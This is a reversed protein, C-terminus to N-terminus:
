PNPLMIIFKSGKKPESNVQIEGNLEKIISYTIFLGLGTGTGPAKTTFFPDSIKSINEEPIGEGNDIFSIIVDDKKQETVITIEGQGDIAQEANSLINLFAQHLKGENGIVVLKKDSYQRIIKIRGKLRANLIVLCNDIIEHVVCKEDMSKVQRSFHGLSKVINTARNVGDDIIDLFPQIVEVNYGSENQLQQILGSCGNKIFNLPNNIEHGIGAALIGLSAMKEAQILQAQTAKLDRLAKELEQNGSLLAENKEKLEQTREAVVQELNETYRELEKQSERLETIDEIFLSVGTVEDDQYIPNHSSFFYLDGQPVPYEMTISFKEGSLARDLYANFKETMPSGLAGILDMGQRLDIDDTAKVYDAFSQNFEILRKNTDFLGIISNTSEFIAKLNADREHLRSEAMKRETIDLVVGEILKLKGEEFIGQGYEDVWIWSDSRNNRLRYTLHFPEKRELAEDVKRFIAEKDDPHYLDVFSIQNSLFEERKYGTLTEAEENLYVMSYTADNHCLYIVGPINDAIARFRQDSERLQLEVEKLETIDRSGTMLSIVESSENKIVETYSDLWIYRGDKRRYRYQINDSKVGDGALQEAFNAIREVDDPHFYTYPDKGILEEPKYGLLKFSSPSVFRYTGDPEHSCILERSLEMVYRQRVESEQIVVAEKFPEHRVGKYENRVSIYKGDFSFVEGESVIYVKGESITQQEQTPQLVLGESKEICEELTSLESKQVRHVIFSEGLQHDTLSQCIQTLHFIGADIITVQM